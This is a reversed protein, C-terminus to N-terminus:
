LFANWKNQKTTLLIVHYNYKSFFYLLYLLFYFKNLTRYILSFTQVFISTRVKNGNRLSPNELSSTLYFTSKKKM